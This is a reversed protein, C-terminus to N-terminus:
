TDDDASETLATPTAVKRANAAKKMAKQAIAFYEALTGADEIDFAGSVTLTAVADGSLPWTFEMHNEGSRPPPTSSVKGSQTQGRHQANGGDTTKKTHHVSSGVDLFTLADRFAAVFRGAGEPLFNRKLILHSRLSEDSADGHSALLESILAPKTAAARLAAGREPSGEPEHIISMALQSVRIGDGSNEILGYQRMSAVATRAPGSLGKYGVAKAASETSVSTRKETEYLKEVLKVAETLTIAPYNPSRERGGSSGKEDEVLIRGATTTETM